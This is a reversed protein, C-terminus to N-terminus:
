KAVFQKKFWNSINDDNFLYMNATIETQQLKARPIQFEGGDLCLEGVKLQM